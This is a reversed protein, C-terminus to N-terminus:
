LIALYKAIGMDKAIANTDVNNGGIMGGNQQSFGLIQSLNNFQRQQEARNRDQQNQANAIMDGFPNKQSRASQIMAGLNIAM